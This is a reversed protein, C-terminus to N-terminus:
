WELAKFKPKTLRGGFTETIKHTTLFAKPDLMEVTAKVMQVEFRNIVCYIIEQPQETLGRKGIFITIGRGLQNLIAEKIDTSKNSVITVGLSEDIGYVLLDIAKSASFYTLISYMMIDLGQFIGCLSFIIINFVLILDGISVPLFKKIILALIETGDLVGGGRLCFGIGGGLFVGGFIASLVLEETMIPIEVWYLSFALAMIAVVGRWVLKLSLQRLGLLIFPTNIAILVWALPIHTLESVLMSLGTVGGDIIHNPLLFGKIGICALSVGGFLLFLQILFQILSIKGPKIVDRKKPMKKLNPILSM